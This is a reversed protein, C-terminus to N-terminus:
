TCTHVRFPVWLFRNEWGHKKKQKTQAPSRACIWTMLSESMSESVYAALAVFFVAPDASHHSEHQKFGQRPFRPLQHKKQNYYICYWLSIMCLSICVYKCYSIYIYVDNNNKQVFRFNTFMTSIQKSTINPLMFRSLFVKWKKRTSLFHIICRAQCVQLQHNTILQQNPSTFSSLAGLLAM